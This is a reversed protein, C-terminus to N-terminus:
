NQANAQYYALIEPTTHPSNAVGNCVHAFVAGDLLGEYSITDDQVRKVLVSREYTAAHAYMIFSPDTIFKHDGKGLLCTTDFKKRQTCIPVLLHTGNKSKNTLIVFLHGSPGTDPIHVTLQKTPVFIKM